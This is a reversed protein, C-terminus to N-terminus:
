GVRVACVRGGVPYIVVIRFCCWLILLSKESYKGLQACVIRNTPTAPLCAFVYATSLKGNERQNILKSQSGCQQVIPLHWAWM